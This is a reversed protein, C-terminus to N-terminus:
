LGIVRLCINDVLLYIAGILTVFFFLMIFIGGVKLTIYALYLIFKEISEFGYVRITEIISKM